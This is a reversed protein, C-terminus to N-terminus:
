GLLEAVLNFSCHDSYPRLLAPIPASSAPSFLGPYFETLQIKKKQVKMIPVKKLDPYSFYRTQKPPTYDFDTENPSRRLLSEHQKLQHQSM